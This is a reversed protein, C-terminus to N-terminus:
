LTKKVHAPKVAHMSYDMGVLIVGAISSVGTIIVMITRWIFMTDTPIVPEQLQVTEKKSIPDKFLLLKEINKELKM